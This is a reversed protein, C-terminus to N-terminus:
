LVRSALPCHCQFYRKLLPDDTELYALPDYPFKSVYITNGVRVGAQLEPHRRVFEVVEPTILQEYWPKGTRAHEELEGLLKERRYRLLADLGEELYKARLPEFNKEPTRHHNGALVRRSLEPGLEGQLGAVVQEVVAPYADQPSGLPPLEIGDFVAARAGPGALEGTREAMSHVVGHGGLVGALYVYVEHLDAVYAYRLLAALNELTNEGTAILRAVYERALGVGVAALDHGAFELLRAVAAVASDTRAEDAGRDLYLQRLEEERFM